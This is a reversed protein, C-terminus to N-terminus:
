EDEMDIEVVGELVIICDDTDMSLPPPWHPYEIWSGSEQDSYFYKKAM